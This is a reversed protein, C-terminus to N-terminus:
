CCCRVEIGDVFSVSGGNTLGEKVKSRPGFSQTGKDSGTPTANTIHNPMEDTAKVAHLPAPLTQTLETASIASSSTMMGNEQLCNEEALNGADPKLENDEQCNREVLESVDKSLQEGEALDTNGSTMERHIHSEESLKEEDDHDADEVTINHKSEPADSSSAKRQGTTLDVESEQEGGIMTALPLPAGVYVEDQSTTLEGQSTLDGPFRKENRAHSESNLSDGPVRENESVEPCELHDGADGSAGNQHQTPQGESSDGEFQLKERLARDVNIMNSVEMAKTADAIDGQAVGGDNPGMGKLNMQSQRQAVKAALERKLRRHLLPTYPSMRLVRGKDLKKRNSLSARQM